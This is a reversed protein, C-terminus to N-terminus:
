RTSIEAAGLAITFFLQANGIDPRPVHIVHSDQRTRSKLLVRVSDKEESEFDVGQLAILHDQSRPSVTYTIRLDLGKLESLMYTDQSGV